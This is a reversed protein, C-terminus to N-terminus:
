TFNCLRMIAIETMGLQEAKTQRGDAVALMQAWLEERLTELTKEGHLAASGDFDINDAMGEYTRRNATLKIVPALPNGCPTGLGTTFLVLQAGGAVMGAVSSPDNGPTDMIVLGKERVPKAYDYVARIPSVGGKHICGLSKQELTTIGAAINGPTPNGRRVDEGIRHFHEEYRRVIELIQEAVAPTEARAALLHEAGIFETTESLIVTGGIAVMKDSVLGVLPNAAKGSTPDSGGCETGLILESFPMPERQQRAAQATLERAYAVAKEITKVTGGEQQIILRFLPKDTRAAIAACVLDMQCTECGLSIVVTGYVNGNAAFGALTDLNHPLDLPVHSCGHQNHFSVAGPVQAAAQCSTDSACVSAPLILVHNRIGVSGDSRRYANIMM